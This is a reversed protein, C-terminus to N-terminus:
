SIYRLWFCRTHSRAMSILGLGRRSMTDQWDFGIGSDSVTLNIGEKTCHVEVTFNQDSSHKVANQLAEQLVRFLCLSLEKPLAAPINSHKFEIRVNKHESLENCFSKAATLLGLYELKSSHLRHSLAQIDQGLDSIRQRAKQLCKHVDVVSGTIQHDFRELEISLLAIRQVIDDHARARDQRDRGGKRALRASTKGRCAPIAARYAAQDKETSPPRFPRDSGTPVM